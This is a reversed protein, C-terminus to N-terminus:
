IFVFDLSEDTDNWQLEVNNKVRYINARITGTSPQASINQAISTINTVSVVGDNSNSYTGYGLIIKKWETTTTNNQTVKTNTDTWPVNVFLRGNSDGEIAYYQGNNSTTENVTVPDGDNTRAEPGTSPQTRTVWPKVLGKSTYTAINSATKGSTVSLGTIHGKGDTNITIGKVIDVDWAATAGSASATKNQGSATAPSYHYQAETVHQDTWPVNVYAYSQESSLAVAYNKNNNTYGIKVGGLATKSAVPLEYNNFTEWTGAQTLAKSTTSGDFSISSATIKGADNSNTIVLRDNTAITKNNDGLKGDNSIFGHTHSTPTRPDSLRTDNGACATGATTGYSVSVTGSNVSLGTGVQMIGKASTTAIPLQRTKINTISGNENQSLSYIFSASTNTGDASGTSNTFAEQKIKYSSEDGLEIWASNAASNGRNYVYEKGSDSITIVDGSIYTEYTTSDTATPLSSLSGKYRMATSLGLNSILSAADISSGLSVTTGAISISSNALKDNSISGALMANTVKGTGISITGSTTIAGSTSSVLGSGPTISTVTGSKLDTTLALTGGTAPLTIYNNTSSKGPKLTTSFEGGQQYLKINGVDSGSASGLELTYIKYSGNIGSTSGIQLKVKDSKKLEEQEVTASNASGTLYYAGSTVTTTKVKTDTDTFLANSPVNIGVTHGNVTAADGTIDATLKGDTRFYYKDNDYYVLYSGAPLDCNAVGSPNGNIYIPKTGKTNVTLTLASESTNDYAMIIHLYSKDLLNYNSCSASKAPNNGATTCYASTYTNEDSSWGIWIWYNGNYVYTNIYDARGFHQTSTGIPVIDGAYRIEKALTDGIKLTIRNGDSDQASYTNTNSFKVNVIAGPVLKFGKVNSDLTAIKERTNAATSCTAYAITVYDLKAKDDKSMFGADTTTANSHAEDKINCIDGNPLKIKSITYEAM